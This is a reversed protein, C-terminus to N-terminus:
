QSPKAEGPRSKIAEAILGAYFRAGEPRLHHGDNWFVWPKDATIGRWDIFIANPYAKVGNAIINNNYAEWERPVRVNFVIVIRRDSLTQMIENFVQETYRGNNGLHVVVVSGLRNEAKRAKIMTAATWAQRGVEADVEINTFAQQLVPAAGLMVSDGIATIPESPIPTLVPTPGGNVPKPSIPLTPTLTATATPKLPTATSPRVASLRETDTDREAPEDTPQPTSQLTATVPLLQVAASVTSTATSTVTLIATAPAELPPTGSPQFQTVPVLTPESLAIIPLSVVSTAGVGRAGAESLPVAQAQMEKQIAALEALYAPTQPPQARVVSSGLVISFAVLVTAAGAWRLGLQRRQPGEAQQLARWSRGLAGTRIPTELLHYSLVALALTLGLRIALLVPGDLSVDLQPRTLMFVPWHWLYIGYSRLGIWVLASSGLVAALRKGRPHVVAAILVATSLATLVFGGRYLFDDFENILLCCALLAGFALVGILDFPLKDIRRGQVKGPTWVFALAVGILIGSARTDAGYYVRSPDAGPAYLMAMLFMSVLAAVAIGVLITRKRFRTMAFVFVLPWILYFQEEIALSWLHRLLSPRGVAEFYSQQSFILYWNTVYVFSALADARLKAVEDPLFLVAFVLSCVIVLFLAPLLRRGRRLWFQGLNIRGTERWESLLLSTILYGSITFFIEVGLFGGPLWHLGAHYILVAIVALARLGDLAPSYPLRASRGSSKAPAVTTEISENISM